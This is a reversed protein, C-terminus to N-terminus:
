TPGIHKGTDAFADNDSQIIIKCIIMSVTIIYLQCRDMASNPRMVGDCREM